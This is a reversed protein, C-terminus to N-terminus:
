GRRCDDSGDNDDAGDVEGGGDDNGEGDPSEDTVVQQPAGALDAAVEVPSDPDNRNAANVALGALLLFSAAIATVAVHRRRSAAPSELPTLPEIPVIAAPLDAPDHGQAHGAHFVAELRPDPVPGHGTLEARAQDLRRKLEDDGSDAPGPQNQDHQRTM